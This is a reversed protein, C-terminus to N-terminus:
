KFAVLTAGYGFKEKKADQFFKIAPNNSLRKQIEQRLTGNGVGHIFVIENMGSALANEFNKEFAAIQIQLIESSNLNGVNNHLVEIHLDVEMAPKKVLTEIKPSPEVIKPTLMQEKLAIPDIVPAKEVTVEVPTTKEDQDIQVVYGEKNLLPATSKSKFFTAARLRMRKLLPERLVQTGHTFFLFQFVLVGWQDFEGLSVEKIKLYNRSKLIQCIVGKYVGNQEEGYSFPLDFDTNNVLYASYKQDNIPLIAWFIGKHAVTKPEEATKVDNTLNKYKGFQRNEEQSIVVIESIKVPIHFGDEIEVEVMRNELIRTIVGEESSHILRVRDGINM